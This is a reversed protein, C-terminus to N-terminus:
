IESEEGRGRQVRAYIVLEDLRYIDMDIGIM